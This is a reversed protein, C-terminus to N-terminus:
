AHMAHVRRCRSIAACLNRVMNTICRSCANNACRCRCLAALAVSRHRSHVRCRSRRRTRNSHTRTTVASDSATAAYNITRNNINLLSTITPAFEGGRAVVVSLLSVVCCIGDAAIYAWIEACLHSRAAHAHAIHTFVQVCMDLLKDSACTNVPMANERCKYERQHASIRRDNQRRSYRINALVRERKGMTEVRGHHM